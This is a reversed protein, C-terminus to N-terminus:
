CLVSRYVNVASSWLRLVTLREGIELSPRPPSASTMLRIMDECFMALRMESDLIVTLPVVTPTKDCNYMSQCKIKIRSSGQLVLVVTKVHLFDNRSQLLAPVNKLHPQVTPESYLREVDRDCLLKSYNLMAFADSGAPMILLQLNRNLRRRVIHCLFNLQKQRRLKRRIEPACAAHKPEVLYFQLHAKGLSTISQLMELLLEADIRAEYTELDFM